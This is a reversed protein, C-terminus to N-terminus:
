QPTLLGALQRIARGRHSIWNKEALPLEAMTIHGAYGGDEVLFVPDYGFGSSGRPETAIRGEVVGDAAMVRGDPWAIAVAARYRATRREWPTSALRELLAQWREQDHGGRWRASRLGPEGGLVDVELGSDDALAPLGSARAQALAKASANERYSSGTEEGVVCLAEAPPEEVRRALCTALSMLEARKGPNTTVVLLTDLPPHSDAPQAAPSGPTRYLRHREIYAGVAEPVLYRISRDEAVRRRIDSGSVGILPMPLWQVAAMLGPVATELRATEPECGPRPFVVFTALSPLRHPEHWTPIDALSDSGLLFFLRADPHEAGIRTLMDVTYHPGPRDVDLRSIAFHRNGAVALALMAIRHDASTVTAQRKHPPDAAPVFAVADLALERLAEAAAILHGVHVPDFTGGFM